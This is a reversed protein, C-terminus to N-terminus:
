LPRTWEATSRVHRAAVVAVVALLVLAAIFVWVVLGARLLLVGALAGVFMAVVSLARRGIRSGSGGALSSDAGVGTLTMTLVTTTLDPVKLARAAANQLGMGLALFTVLLGLRLGSYGESFTPTPGVLAVVLAAAVAVIQAAVVVLLQRARHGATRVTILGGLMSGLVFALIALLSSWWVFGPAGALAFGLMVVNGTMNAVFVRGLEFFSFADILGTVVTMTLLLPPLPGHPDGARPALVSRVDAIRSAM